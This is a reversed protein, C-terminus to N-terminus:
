LYIVLIGAVGNKQYKKKKSLMKNVLNIRSKKDGLNRYEYKKSKHNIKLFIRDNPNDLMFNLLKNRIKKYFKISIYKNFTYETIFYGEYNDALQLLDGGVLENNYRKYSIYGIRSFILFYIILILISINKIM